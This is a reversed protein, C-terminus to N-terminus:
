MVREGTLLFILEGDFFLSILFMLATFLGHIWNRM